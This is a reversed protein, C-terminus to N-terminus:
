ETAIAFAGITGRPAFDSYQWVRRGGHHFGGLLIAHGSRRVRKDFGVTWTPARFRQGEGEASYWYFHQMLDSTYVDSVALLSKCGSVERRCIPINVLNSIGEEGGLVGAGTDCASHTV